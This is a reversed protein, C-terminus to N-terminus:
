DADSPSACWLRWREAAIEPNEIAGAAVAARLVRAFHERPRAREAHLPLQPTAQRGDIWALFALGAKYHETPPEFLIRGLAECPGVIADYRARDGRALWALAAAMPAAIADFVGLLAHSFEGLPLSEAGLSAREERADPADGGILEGFSFDDGTFVFQENARAERRIARERAADLLSIKAGRVKAPDHALIRSFSGGPFLHKLVDRFPEGLWHLLLPGEVADIISTYVRVFRDEDAREEALRVLPLLVPIGGQACVVEAQEAVAAVLDEDSAGAPASDEGVGAVFGHKLGLRGTRWVLEAALDWGIAFRQATDMAEAIGFGLADLRRRQVEMAGWDIFPAFNAPDVPEDAHEVHRYDETMAIRVAAFVRRVPRPSDGDDLGERARRLALDDIVLAEGAGDPNGKTM